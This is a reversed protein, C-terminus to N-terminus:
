QKSEKQSVVEGEEAVEKEKRKKKLNAVTFPNVIPSPLPSLLFLSPGSPTRLCLGRLGIQLSSM